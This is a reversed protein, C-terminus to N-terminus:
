EAAFEADDIKRKGIANVGSNATNTNSSLVLRLTQDTMDLVAPTKQISSEMFKNFQQRSLLPDLFGPVLSGGIRHILIDVYQANMIRLVHQDQATVVNIFHVIALQQGIVHLFGSVHRDCANIHWHLRHVSETDHAHVLVQTDGAEGLLGGRSSGYGTLGPVRKCAHTDIYEICREQKFLQNMVM